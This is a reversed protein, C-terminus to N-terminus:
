DHTLGEHIREFNPLDRPDVQDDLILEVAARLRALRVVDLVKLRQIKQGDPGVAAFSVMAAHTAKAEAKFEKPFTTRFKEDSSAKTQTSTNMTNSMLM